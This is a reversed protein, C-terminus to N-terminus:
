LFSLLFIFWAVVCFVCICPGPGHVMGRAMQLHRYESELLHVRGDPKKGLCGSVQMGVMPLSLYGNRNQSIPKMELHVASQIIDSILPWGWEGVRLTAEGEYAWNCLWLVIEDM